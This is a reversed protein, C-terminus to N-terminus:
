AVVDRTVYWRTPRIIQSPFEAVDRQDGTVQAYAVKKNAGSVLFWIEDGANIAPATMTYRYADFKPVDNAVFARRTEKLAKTHPFLSATHADDGMGLLVLDFRPPLEGFHALLTKNYTDAALVPNDVNVPVGHVNGPPVPVKGLLAEQVMRYNSDTHDHPVNREDGWFWHIKNWPLKRESLLEYLRKPTSGGSLSVNFKEKGEPMREVLECFADAVALQLQEASDFWLPNTM